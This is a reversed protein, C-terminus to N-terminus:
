LLGKYKLFGVIENRMKEKEALYKPNKLVHKAIKEGIELSRKTLQPYELGAKERLNANIQSVKHLNFEPVLDLLVAEFISIRVLYLSPYSYQPTFILPNNKLPPKVKAKAALNVILPILDEDMEREFNRWLSDSSLSNALESFYLEGLKLSCRCRNYKLLNIESESLKGIKPKSFEIKHLYNNLNIKPDIYSNAWVINAFIFTIFFMCMATAQIRSIKRIKFKRLSGFRLKKRRRKNKKM